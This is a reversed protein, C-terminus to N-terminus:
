IVNFNSNNLSKIVYRAFSPHYTVSAKDDPNTLTSFADPILAEAYTKYDAIFTERNFQYPVEMVRMLTNLDAHLLGKFFAKYPPSGLVIVKIGQALYELAMTSSLVVLIDIYKVLEKSQSNRPLIKVNKLSSLRKYDGLGLYSKPNLKILLMDGFSLTDSIREIINIQNRYEPHYVDVSAEPQMHMPFLLIRKGLSPVEKINIFLHRFKLANFYWNLFDGNLNSFRGYFPYNDLFYNNLYKNYIYNLRPYILRSFLRGNTSKNMYTIQSFNVLEHILQDLEYKSLHFNQLPRMTKYDALVQTRMNPRGVASFGFFKGGNFLLVESALWYSFHEVQNSLLISMEDFLNDFFDFYKVVLKDWDERVNFREINKIVSISLGRKNLYIEFERFRVYDHSSFIIESMNYFKIGSYDAAKNYVERWHTIVIIEGYGYERIIDKAVRVFCDFDWPRAYIFIKM